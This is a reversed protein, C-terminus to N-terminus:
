TTYEWVITVIVQAATGASRQLAVGVADGAAFSNTNMTTIVTTQATSLDIGTNDVHTGDELKDTTDTIKSIRLECSSGLSTQSRVAIKKITGPYPALTRTWYNNMPGGSVSENLNNFPVYNKITTDNNLQFNHTTVVIQKTANTATGTTDQNLTPINAANITATSSIDNDWRYHEEPRYNALSNHNITGQTAVQIVGSNDVFATSGMTLTGEITTVSAAGSAITVDIEDEASGGVIDLGIQLEADHSAVQVVYRGSEQGDTAVDIVGNTQVFTTPNGASDDMTYNIQGIEDGNAGANDAPQRIFNLSPPVAGDNTNILNLQPDGDNASTVRVGDATINFLSSDTYSFKSGFDQVASTGNGVLIGNANFSTAGTGGNAVPVNDVSITLNGNTAGTSSGVLGLDIGTGETFTLAFAGSTKSHDNAGSAVAVSTIDGGGIDSLVQAFTRYGVKNNSDVILIKGGSPLSSTLNVISNLFIDAQLADTGINVSNRFSSVFDFVHQGIYKIGNGGDGTGKM